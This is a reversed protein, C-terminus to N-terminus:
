ILSEVPSNTDKENVLPLVVISQADITNQLFNTRDILKNFRSDTQLVFYFPMARLYCLYIDRAVCAKDMWHLAQGQEGLGFYGLALAMPPVYKHASVQILEEILSCAMDRMACTGCYYATWGVIIPNSGSFRIATKLSQLAQEILSEQGYLVGLVWHTWANHSDCEAAKKAQNLATSFQRKLYFGMALNLETLVSGNRIMQAQQLYSIAEDLKGALLLNHSYWNLVNVDCPALEIAQQFAQQAGAWNWGYFLRCIGLTVQAMALTPDFNLSERALLEAKPLVKHPAVVGQLGLLSYYQALRALSRAHRRGEQGFDHGTTTITDGRHCCETINDCKLDQKLRVIPRYSGKPLGILLADHKGETDSYSNLKSRLRSAEVRVIPDIRPDFSDKRGFVEVAILYEKLQNGGNEVFHWVIYRLFEQARKAGRFANSALIRDLQTYVEHTSVGPPLHGASSWIRSPELM